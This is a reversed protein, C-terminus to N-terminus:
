SSLYTVSTMQCLMNPHSTTSFALPSSLTGPISGPPNPEQVTDGDWVFWPPKPLLRGSLKRHRHWVQGHRGLAFIKILLRCNCVPSPSGRRLVCFQRHWTGTVLCSHRCRPWPVAARTESLRLLAFLLAATCQTRIKLVTYM